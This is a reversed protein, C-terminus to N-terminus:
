EPWNLLREFEAMDFDKEEETFEGHTYREAQQVRLVTDDFYKEFCQDAEMESLGCKAMVIDKLAPRANRNDTVDM